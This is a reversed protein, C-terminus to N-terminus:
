EPYKRIERKYSKIYDFGSYGHEFCRCDRVFGTDPRNDWDALADSTSRKLSPASEGNGNVGTVFYEGAEKLEFSRARGEYILEAKGKEERYLRYIDCGLVEGWSATFGNGNKVVRLGEPCHPLDEAVYVPYAHSYEGRKEGSVGRVRVYYKGAKLGSKTFFNEGAQAACEGAREYTYEGDDSVFIEYGKAGATQDWKVTFYDKGAVIRDIVPVAVDACMGINYSHEGQPMDFKYAGSEYRFPVPAGDVFVKAGDKERVFVAATGESEFFARGSVEEALVASMARRVGKEFPIEIALDKLRIRAGDFLAVRKEFAREAMYGVYGDFAFDKEETRIRAADDFVRESGQPFILEAGYERKEISYLLREDHYNRLHTVVTFFDGQGAFRMVKSQPYKSRYEGACDVPAGSQSLVGGMGPRLNAIVPFDGGERQAWTFMGHQRADGVADYVAIYRNEVMLVSRYKYYPSSYEGANVRAYKAFGLDMLPETLENRGVSKYEHGVLVGFNTCSQVDGRNEDGVDEPAHDTYNRRAAYYYLEGCGGQAARGWRYNPGEDIQQLFVAMEGDTGARDRLMFGLGTFKCTELKPSTGEGYKAWRRYTEGYIGSSSIVAEYDERNRFNHRLYEALLPEYNQLMDALELMALMFGHGFKGGYAGTCAHSGHPAYLRRGAGNEPMQMDVLFRIFERIHPYLMPMEGGSLRYIMYCDYVVCQLMCMMYAGINETWRGGRAGWKKVAPRVHYKFNRALVKEYWALWKKYMPHKEGLLCAFVAVTGAVDTLFNPHGALLNETPYWNEDSLTYCVLAMAARVRRFQEDSLERATLDFTQAWSSRYARCSVPAIEEPRTFITADRDLIDMMDEPCPKGTHEAYFGGWKTDRAVRYYRPYEARDDEWELVYDKVKNLSAVSYWRMYHTGLAEPPRDGCVVHMFARKGNVVAGEARDTYMSFALTDSSGWVAYEGDDCNKLDHLLIGSWLGGAKDAYAAWRVEWWSTKPTFPKVRFPLKDGETYADIKERGRELTCRHTPSFNEHSLVLAAEGRAFGHMEEYVEIFDLGRRLKLTLSYSRGGEYRRKMTFVSEVAGGLEERKESVLKKETRLRYFFLAGSGHAVCFGGDAPRVSLIGNDAGLPAFASKGKEWSFAHEGGCPLDAMVKLTYKGKKGEAQYPVEKGDMFLRDAGASPMEGEREYELLTLPFHYAKHCLKDKLVFNEM